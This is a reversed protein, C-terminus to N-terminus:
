RLLAGAAAEQSESLNFNSCIPRGRADRGVAGKIGRKKGDEGAQSEGPRSKHENALISNLLFLHLRRMAQARNLARPKAREKKTPVKDKTALSGLTRIM